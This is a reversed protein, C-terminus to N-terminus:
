IGKQCNIFKNNEKKSKFWEWSLRSTPYKRNIDHANKFKGVFILRNVLSNAKAKGNIDHSLM